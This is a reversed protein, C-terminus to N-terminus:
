NANNYNKYSEHLAQEMVGTLDAEVQEEGFEERLEDYMKRYPPSLHEKLDSM